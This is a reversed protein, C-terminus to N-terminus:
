REHQTGSLQEATKMMAQVTAKHDSVNVSSDKKIFQTQQLLASIGRM